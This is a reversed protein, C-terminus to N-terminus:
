VLALSIAFLVNASWPLVWQLKGFVGIWGLLLCNLGTYHFGEAGTGAQKLAPQFLAACWLGIAPVFLVWTFGQMDM